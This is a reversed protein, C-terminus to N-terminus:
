KSTEATIFGESVLVPQMMCDFGEVAQAKCAAYDAKMSAVPQLPSFGSPQIRKEYTVWTLTALAILFGAVGLYSVRADSRRAM